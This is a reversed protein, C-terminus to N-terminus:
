LICLSFYLLSPLCHLLLLVKGGGGQSRGPSLPSTLSACGGSKCVILPFVQNYDQTTMKHTRGTLASFDLSLPSPSFFVCVCVFKCVLHTMTTLTLGKHSFRPVVSYLSDRPLFLASFLKTYAVFFSVVFTAGAESRCLLLFFFWVGILGFKHLCNQLQFICNVAVNFCSKAGKQVQLYQMTKIQWFCCFFSHLCCVQCLSKWCGSMQLFPFSFCVCVCLNASLKYEHCFDGIWYKIWAIGEPQGRIGQKQLCGAARDGRPALFLTSKAKAIQLSAAEHHLFLQKKENQLHKQESM